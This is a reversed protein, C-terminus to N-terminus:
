KAPLDGIYLAKILHNILGGTQTLHISGDKQCDIHVGLFGTIDEKVELEMSSAAILRDIGETIDEKNQAFFM